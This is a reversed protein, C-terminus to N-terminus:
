GVARHRQDPMTQPEPEPMLLWPVVLSSVGMLAFALAGIFGLVRLAVNRGPDVLPLDDDDQVPSAVPPLPRKM